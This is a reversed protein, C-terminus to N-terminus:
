GGILQNAPPELILQRAGQVIAEEDKNRPSAYPAILHHNLIAQASPRKAPDPDLMRIILQHLENTSDLRLQTFRHLPDNKGAFENILDVAEFMFDKYPFPRLLRPNVPKGDALRPRPTNLEYLIVGLSWVDAKYTILGEEKFNNVLEPASFDPSDVPSEMTEALAERSTGFDGLVLLGDKGVFFNESKLDLHMVSNAHAQAVGKAMDAFITMLAHSADQHSIQGKQLGTQILQQVKWADGNPAHELVLMTGADPRQVTGLLGVIHNHEGTQAQAHTQAEALVAAQAKEDDSKLEKVVVTETGCRYLYASGFAGEGLPAPDRVFLKNGPGRLKTPKIWKFQGLPQQAAPRAIGCGRMVLSVLHDVHHRYELAGLAHKPSANAWNKAFAIAAQYDLPETGALGINLAAAGQIFSVFDNLSKQTFPPTVNKSRLANIFLQAKRTNLQAAATLVNTNFQLLQRPKPMAACAKEADSIRDFLLQLDRALVSDSHQIQEEVKAFQVQADDKAVVPPCKEVQKKLGLLAAETALKRIELNGVWKDWRHAWGSKARQKAYIVTGKVKFGIRADNKGELKLPRLTRADPASLTPTKTKEGSANVREVITAKFFPVKSKAASQM